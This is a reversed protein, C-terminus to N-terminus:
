KRRHLVELAIRQSDGKLNQSVWELYPTPLEEWPEGKHKGFTIIEVRKAPVQRKKRSELEDLAIQKDDSNLNKSLWLLYDEDLESWKQGKFKGFNITASQAVLKRQPEEETIFVEMGKLQFIEQLHHLELRKPIIFSERGYDMSGSRESAFRELAKLTEVSLENINEVKCVLYRPYQTYLLKIM